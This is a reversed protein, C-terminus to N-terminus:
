QWSRCGGPRWSRAPRPQQLPLCALMSLRMCPTRQAIHQPRPHRPHQCSQPRKLGTTDHRPPRAKGNCQTACADALRRTAPQAHILMTPACCTRTVVPPPCMASADREHSGTKTHPHSPSAAVRTRRALGQVPPALQREQVRCVYAKAGAACTIHATVVGRCASTRLWALRTSKDDVALSRAMKAHSPSGPKCTVRQRGRPLTTFPPPHNEPWVPWCCLVCGDASACVRRAWGLGSSQLRRRGARTVTGGGRCRRGRGWCRTHRGANGCRGAVARTSV